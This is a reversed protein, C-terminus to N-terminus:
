GGSACAGGGGAAAGIGPCCGCLYRGGSDYRMVEAGLPRPPRRYGSRTAEAAEQRRMQVSSSVESFGALNPRDV